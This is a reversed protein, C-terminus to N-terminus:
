APAPAADGFFKVIVFEDVYAGDIKACARVRSEISFGCKKYLAVARENAVRVGGELRTVGAKVCHEDQIALLHVGLGQGWVEKLMMMGFTAVHARWPHSPMEQRTRLMGVIREGDFAGVTLDSALPLREEWSRMTEAPHPDPAGVYRLTHTTELAIQRLFAAFTAYDVPALPRLVLSRGDKLVFQVPAFAAM